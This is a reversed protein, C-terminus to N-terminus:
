VIKTYSYFYAETVSAGFKYFGFNTLNQVFFKCIDAFKIGSFM